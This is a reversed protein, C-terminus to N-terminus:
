NDSMRMESPVVHGIALFLSRGLCCFLFLSRECWSVGSGGGAAVSFLSSDYGWDQSIRAVTAITLVASYSFKCEPVSM